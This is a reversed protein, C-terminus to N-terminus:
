KKSKLILEKIKDAVRQSSRGDTYSLVKKFYKKRKRLFLKYYDDSLCLDIAEPIDEINTVKIDIEERFHDFMNLINKPNLIIIPLGMAAAQFSTFSNTSIQVDCIEFLEFLSSDKVIRVNPFKGFIKEYKKKPERPHVKIIFTLNHKSVIAKKYMEKVMKFEKKGFAKDIDQTCILINKKVKDRSSFRKFISDFAPNGVFYTNKRKPNEVFYKSWLLLYTNQNENGYIPRKRFVPIRLIQNVVLYKIKHLIGYEKIPIVFDLFSPQLIVFPISKKRCLSFIIRDSLALDSCSIVAEPHYKNLYNSITKKYKYHIKLVNWLRKANFNIKKLEHYKDFRTLIKKQNKKIYNKDFKSSVPDNVNLLIRKHREFYPLISFFQPCSLYSYTALFLILNESM